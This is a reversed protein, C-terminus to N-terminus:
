KFDEFLAKINSELQFTIFYLNNATIAMIADVTPNLVLTKIDLLWANTNAPFISLHTVIQGLSSVLGRTPVAHEGSLDQQGILVLNCLTQLYCICYSGFLGLLM